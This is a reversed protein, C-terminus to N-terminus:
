TRYLNQYITSKYEAFMVERVVTIKSEEWVDACENEHQLQIFSNLLPIKTQLKEHFDAITNLLSLSVCVCM